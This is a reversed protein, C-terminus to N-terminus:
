GHYRCPLARGCVTGDSKTTACTVPEVLGILLEAEAQHIRYAVGDATVVKAPAAHDKFTLKRIADGTAEENYWVGPRRQEFGM